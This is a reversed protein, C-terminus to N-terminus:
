EVLTLLDPDSIRACALAAQIGMVIASPDVKQRICLNLAGILRDEPSLKRLIDRGVREVTDGLHRNRFRKLLDDAYRQVEDYACGHARALSLASAYMAARCIGEIDPDQCAEWIYEYGKLRGLYAALAHGMNHIYLKRQIYFAFPSAPIMNRIDPIAGKFGDRDVPLECYPEVHVRLPNDAQMEPTMVPVMRGVSAEVFGVETELKQRNDESLEAAILQKLYHNADLLNECIIINLPAQNGNRWRRLLGEAIPRAIYPLVNVGVATAMLDAESIVTAVADLDRGDVARVNRIMVEDSGAESVINIPYAHDRNLQEVVAQNVDIFIVEYDSQSFLQGIFGRGINGAGYMVARLM